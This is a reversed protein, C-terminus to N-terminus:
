DLYISNSCLLFLTVSSNFVFNVINKKMSYSFSADEDFLPVIKDILSYKFGMNKLHLDMSEWLLGHYGM